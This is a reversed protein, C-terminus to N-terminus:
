CHFSDTPHFRETEGACDHSVAHPCTEGSPLFRQLKECRMSVLPQSAYHQCACDKNEVTRIEHLSSALQFQCVRLFNELMETARDQAFCNAPERKYQKKADVDHHKRSSTSDGFIVCPCTGPDSVQPHSHCTDDRHKYPEIAENLDQFDFARQDDEDTYRYGQEYSCM